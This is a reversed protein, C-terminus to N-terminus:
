DYVNFIAALQVAVAYAQVCVLAIAANAQESTDNKSYLKLGLFMAVIGCTITLPTVRCCSSTQNCFMLAFDLCTLAGTVVTLIMIAWADYNEQGYFVDTCQWALLIVLVWSVAASIIYLWWMGGLRKEYYEEVKM